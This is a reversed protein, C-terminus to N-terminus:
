GPLGHQWEPGYEVSISASDSFQHVRLCQRAMDGLWCLKAANHPLLLILQCNGSKFASTRVVLSAVHRNGVLGDLTEAAEAGPFARGLASAM